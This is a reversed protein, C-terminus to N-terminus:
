LVFFALLFGSVHFSSFEVSAYFFTKSIASFSLLLLIKAAFSGSVFLFLSISFFSINLIKLLIENKVFKNSM